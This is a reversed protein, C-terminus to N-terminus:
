DALEPDDPAMPQKGRAIRLLNVEELIAPDKDGDIERRDLLERERPTIGCVQDIVTRMEQTSNLQKVPASQHILQIVHGQPANMGTM